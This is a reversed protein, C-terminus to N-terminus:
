YVFTKASKSNDDSESLREEWCKWKQITQASQQSPTKQAEGLSPISKLSKTGHDM